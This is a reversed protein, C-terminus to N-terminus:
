GQGLEGRIGAKGARAGAVLEMLARDSGDGFRRVVEDYAKVAEGSRGIRELAVGKSFLATAVAEMLAPESADGFRRVVGDFAKM